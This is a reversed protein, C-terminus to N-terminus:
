PPTTQKRGQPRLAEEVVATVDLRRGAEYSETGATGALRDEYLTRRRLTFQLREVYAEVFGWLLAARETDGREAAVAGLGALCYCLLRDAGTQWATRLGDEYASEASDVNGAELEIDGLSHLSSAASFSDGERRSLDSAERLLLRGREVDGVAAAQHGKLHLVRRIGPSNGHERHLAEAEELMPGAVEPQGLEIPGVALTTLAWAIGPGSGTRRFIALAEEGWRTALAYDGRVGAVMSGTALARARVGDDVAEAQEFLAQFWRQGEVAVNKDLWVTALAGGLQLGAEIEGSELAWGFAARINDWDKRFRERLLVQGPGLREAESAEALDTFYKAHRRRLEDTEGSEVLREVAYERITELMSFRDEERRVLSKDLLSGLTGLDAECVQEAAELLWGGHFVGLRAFLRQEDAALLDYSWEITARLTQQRAPLDRRVATLMPLRRELRGLLERPPLLKVRAAALEIALPLSDLRRCIEVLDRYDSTFDPLVAEARQRFLEVAPEEALPGIPFEREGAIRLPERSTVLISLNPCVSRVGALEGAADVVQEFNDLVLLLERSGVHEAVDGDADLVEGITPLVLAPDRITALEVLRVGDDFSEILESAAAVALSTKGVGGPGTLTVVRAQERGLLSAIEDLERNRGILVPPEVPLRGRNLSRLPPFENRGLQFLRVPASIDKLRHEGLDRLEFEGNLLARTAESLVVQGGHGAAAIRAARHVDLGVYGQDTVAPEGTHIGMRVRVPGTSLAHQAEAAAAVADAASTFAAFVADGETGVQVGGHRAVSEHLARRHAGLLEAYREGVQELLRTSGEIDTFLLTVTGTPLESM